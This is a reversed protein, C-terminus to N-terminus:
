HLSSAVLLSEWSQDLETVQMTMALTAQLVVQDCNAELHLIICHFWQINQHFQLIGKESEHHM